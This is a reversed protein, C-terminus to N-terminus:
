LLCSGITKSGFTQPPSELICQKGGPCPTAANADCYRVCQTGNCGFGPACPTTTGCSAGAQGTGAKGCAFRSGSPFALASCGQGTGSGPAGSTGGEQCSTPDLPDCLSFCKGYPAGSATYCVGACQGNPNGDQCYKLCLGNACLLGPACDTGSSCVSNRVGTGTPSCALHGAVPYCDQNAKCGCLPFMKCEDGAAPQCAPGSDGGSDSGSDVVTSTDDVAGDTASDQGAADGTSYSNCGAVLVLSMALIGSRM